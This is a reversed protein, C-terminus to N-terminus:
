LLDFDILGIIIIIAALLTADLVRVYLTSRPMHVLSFSLVTTSQAPLYHLSTQSISTSAASTLYLSQLLLRSEDESTHQMRILGPTHPPHPSPLLLSTSSPPIDHRAAHSTPPISPSPFPSTHASIPHIAKNTDM